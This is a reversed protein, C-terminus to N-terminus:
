AAEASDDLGEANKRVEAALLGAAFLAITDGDIQKVLEDPLALLTLADDILSFARACYGIATDPLEDALARLEADTMDAAEALAAAEGGDPARAYIEEGAEVDDGVIRHLLRVRMMEGIMRRTVASDCADNFVQRDMIM